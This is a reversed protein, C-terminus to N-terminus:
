EGDNTEWFALRTDDQWYDEYTLFETDPSAHTYFIARVDICAIPHLKYLLDGFSHGSYTRAVHVDHKKILALM